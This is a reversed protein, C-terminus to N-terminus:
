VAVAVGPEAREAVEGREERKVEADAARAATSVMEVADM